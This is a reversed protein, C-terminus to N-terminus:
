AQSADEVAELTDRYYHREWERRGKGTGRHGGITGVRIHKRELAGGFTMAYAPHVPLKHKYLYAFVDEGSWWGIPACTNKSSVGWRKMRLSRTASEEARVGSVYREGLKRSAIEFERQAGDHGTIDPGVVPGSADIERYAVGPYMALFADRVLACDPNEMIGAPFWALPGVGARIALHAVVVSDKGWSVGVYCPGGDAFLDLQDLARAEKWELARSTSLIADMAEAQSWYALDGPTHRHSEILGM